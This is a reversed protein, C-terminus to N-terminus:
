RNIKGFRGRKYDFVARLLNKIKVIKHNAYLLNTRILAFVETRSVRIYEPFDKRYKKWLYLSNRLIYYLRVENHLSKDMGAVRVHKGLNHYLVADNVRIITYGNKHLRLCYENDVQDIFFKELFKGTKRYAALNLLNGSTMVAMLPDCAKLYYSHKETVARQYASVIGLKETQHGAIYRVLKELMGDAARSDQDMTLIYDCGNKLARLAGINLAVAIGKNGHNDIYCIKQNQRLREILEKNKRESNDVAYLIDLQNVYSNINEEVSDDPNYLVVVGALRM